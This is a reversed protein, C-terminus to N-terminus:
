RRRNAGERRGVEGAQKKKQSGAPKQNALANQDEHQLPRDPESRGAGQGRRGPEHQSEGLDTHCYREKNKGRLVTTDWASDDVNWGRQGVRMAVRTKM